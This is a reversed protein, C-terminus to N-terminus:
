YKWIKAPQRASPPIQRWLGLIIGWYNKSKSSLRRSKRVVEAILQRDYQQFLWQTDEERGHELVREIIYTRHLEPDIQDAETDWFLHAPM